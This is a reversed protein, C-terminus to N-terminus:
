RAAGLVARVGATDEVLVGGSRRTADLGIPSTVRSV